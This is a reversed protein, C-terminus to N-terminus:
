PSSRVASTRAGYRFCTCTFSTSDGVSRVGDARPKGDVYAAYDPVIDFPIRFEDFTQKWAQAHVKATQTIVGDLDFLCGQIHAPLGLTPAM